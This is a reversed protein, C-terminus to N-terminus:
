AQEATLGPFTLIVRLGPGADGLALTGRHFHAIAAALPLGLGHGSRQGDAELRGFRRMVIERKDAPIGPGNDEVAVEVGREGKSVTVTIVTGAPTHRVSNEVLNLLMQSLLRRDGEVMADDCTGIALDQGREEAVPQLLDVIERALDGLSIRSLATRRSGSEIEAIRLLASFMALLDDAQQTALALEARIPQADDREELLALENRLKALPTRLEHSINNSVNRIEAMLEDIRDLMSNFGMAQQDFEGGDGAVPVRQRLDGAIISEVTRRMDVIRAGIMRRFLLLGFLVVIIISGFGIMYIRQRAAFYHEIPETEAFVALRMGHGIERVYVRGYSLGEIQDRRGLSSFGLPLNRDLRANGALWHGQADVLLFGLDASDRENGLAEIGRELEKRDLLRGPPVLAWGETEIRKDVLANITSLTAFFTGFGALLTVTLFLALFAITLGRLSRLRFTM